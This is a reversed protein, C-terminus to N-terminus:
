KNVAQRLKSGHLGGWVGHVQGTDVAYRLCEARVPCRGCVEVVAVPGSQKSPFFDATSVGEVRCQGRQMWSTDGEVITPFLTSSRRDVAPRIRDRRAKHYRRAADRCEDCRCGKVYAGYKGHGTVPRGVRSRGAGVM